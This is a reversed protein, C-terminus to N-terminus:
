PPITDFNRSPNFLAYFLDLQGYAFVSSTSEIPSGVSIGKTIRRLTNGHSLTWLNNFPINKKYPILQEEKNAQTADNKVPRRTNLWKSDIQIVSGSSLTALIWKNSVSYRTSSVCLLNRIALGFTYAQSTIYPLPANFASFVNDDLPNDEVIYGESPTRGKTPVNAPDSLWLDISTIETTLSQANWFSYVFKNEYLLMSVHGSQRKVNHHYQHLYVRGTIGDMLYVHLVDQVTNVTAVGILHPNLYKYIAGREGTRYVSNVVLQDHSSFVFDVIEEDTSGFSKSWVTGASLADKKKQLHYGSLTEEKHSLTHYFIKGMNPTIDEGFPYSQIENDATILLTTKDSHEKTLWPTAFAKEIVYDVSEMHIHPKQGIIHFPSSISIIWSKHDDRLIALLHPPHQRISLMNVIEIQSTSDTCLHKLNISWLIDGNSSSLGYLKGSSTLITM